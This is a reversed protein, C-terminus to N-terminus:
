LLAAIYTSLIRLPVLGPSRGTSCGVFNSRTILRLVALANPRVIGGVNSRWASWTISYRMSSPRPWRRRAATPNAVHEMGEYLRAGQAGRVQRSGQDARPRTATPM